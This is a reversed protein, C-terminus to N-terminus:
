FKSVKNQQRNIIYVRIAGVILLLLGIYFVTVHPQADIGPTRGIAFGISDCYRCGYSVIISFVGGVLTLTVDITELIKKTNREKWYKRAFSFIIYIAIMIIIIIKGNNSGKFLENMLFAIASAMILIWAIHASSSLLKNNKILINKTKNM